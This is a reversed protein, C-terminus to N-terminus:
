VQLPPEGTPPTHLLRGSLFYSGIVLAAALVQAAITEVTPFLSFWVGSWDPFVGDLAKITTTPIWHALQMEQAEEGVMVLLLCVGVDRRHFDADQPLAPAPSGLLHNVRCHSDFGIGGTFGVSHAMRGVEPFLEALLARDRLRRSLRFFAGAAGIGLLSRRSVQPEASFRAAGKQPSSAPQDLRGLVGQPFVLEDRHASRGRGAFWDRSTPRAHPYLRHSRGRDGRVCYWTALTALFGASAGVFIPRAQSRGQVDAKRSLGATIASLVLISELGERFVLVAIDLIAAWSSTNPTTPDPNGSATVGQWILIAVVPLAGLAVLGYTVRRSLYSSRSVPPAATSSMQM